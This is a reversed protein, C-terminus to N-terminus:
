DMGSLAGKVENGPIRKNIKRNGVVHFNSTV